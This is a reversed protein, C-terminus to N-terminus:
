VLERGSAFLAPAGGTHWFLVCENGSFEHHAIMDILAGMAKATYVPDLLIGELRAVLNIAEWERPGVVGYGEGAYRRDLIVPVGSGALAPTGLLGATERALTVIGRELEDSSREGKEVCIGILRGRYGFAVAGTILGAHTGGSSSAFIMADIPRGDFPIQRAVEEMATVYGAAGLSTKRNSKM